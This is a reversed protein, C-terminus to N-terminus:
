GITAGALASVKVGFEQLMLARSFVIIHFAILFFITPPLLERL